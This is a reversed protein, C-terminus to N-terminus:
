RNIIDVLQSSVVAGDPLLHVPQASRVPAGTTTWPTASALLPQKATLQVPIAPQALEVRCTILREHSERWIEREKAQTSTVLLEFDFLPIPYYQKM